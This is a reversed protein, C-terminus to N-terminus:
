KNSDGEKEANEGKQQGLCKEGEGSSGREPRGISPDLQDWGSSEVIDTSFYKELLSMWITGDENPSLNPTKLGTRMSEMDVSFPLDGVVTQVRASM